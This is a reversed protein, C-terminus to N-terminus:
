EIKIENAIAQDRCIVLYSHTTITPLESQISIMEDFQDHFRINSYNAAFSCTIRTVKFLSPDYLQSWERIQNDVKFKDTSELVIDYYQCSEIRHLLVQAEPPGLLRAMEFLTSDNFRTFRDMDFISSAFHIQPEMLRLLDLVMAEVKKSKRHSYVKKHMLYRCYFLDYVDTDCKRHYTIDGNQSIQLSNLLRRYSFNLGIGLFTTDRSLYDFKDVDIGNKYNSVIQYLAQSKTREVENIVEPSPHILDTVLKVYQPPLVPELIMKTLVISRMEHDVLPHPLYGPSRRLVDVDDLNDDCLEVTPVLTSEAFFRDLVHSYPGHGLDHCLGALKVCEIVEPSLETAQDSIGPIVFKHGTKAVEQVMLGALHYTGIMHEFRTHNASPYAFYALGLQKIYRMRQMYPHDLVVTAVNTLSVFDHVPCKIQHRHALLGPDWSSSTGVESM